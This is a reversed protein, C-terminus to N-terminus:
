WTQKLRSFELSILIQRSVMIREM